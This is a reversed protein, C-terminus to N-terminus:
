FQKVYRNLINADRSFHNQMKVLLLVRNFWAALFVLARLHWACLQVVGSALSSCSFIDNIWTNSDNIKAKTWTHCCCNEPKDVWMM